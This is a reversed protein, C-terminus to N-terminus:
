AREEIMTDVMEIGRKEDLQLWKIALILRVMYGLIVDISFLKLGVMEEVAEFRFRCLAQHLELPSEGFEAFIRKVAGFREPPDYEPADKQALIEAILLDNPDEFQLERLLDRNLKKARIAVLVLRLEREFALYEKVFGAQEGARFYSSILEPFHEVREKAEKYRDLFEDIYAPLNVRDLLAEEIENSNMTGYPDFPLEKWFARINLVDYLGRLARVKEMDRRTLNERLLTDFEDFTIELPAGLQIPPLATALFYYETM